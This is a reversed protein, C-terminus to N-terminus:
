IYIYIYSFIKFFYHYDLPLPFNARKDIILENEPPSYLIEMCRISTHNRVVLGFMSIYFISKNGFLGLM